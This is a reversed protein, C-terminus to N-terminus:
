YAWLAKGMQSCFTGQAQAVKLAAAAFDGMTFLHTSTPPNADVLSMASASSPVRGGGTGSGNDAGMGGTREIRDSPAASNMSLQRLPHVGPSSSPSYPSSSAGAGLSSGGGPGGGSAYM